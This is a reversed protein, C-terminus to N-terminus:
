VDSIDLNNVDGQDCADSTGDAKGGITCNKRVSVKKSNPMFSLIREFINVVNEDISTYEPKNELNFYLLSEDNEDEKFGYKKYLNTLFNTYDRGKTIDPELIIKNKNYRKAYNIIDDFIKKFYGQGRLNEYIEVHSIFLDDGKSFLPEVTFFGYKFKQTNKDDVFEVMPPQHAAMNYTGITKNNLNDFDQELDQQKIYFERIERKKM